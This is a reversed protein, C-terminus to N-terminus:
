RRLGLEAALSDQAREIMRFAEKLGQRALPGLAAPDVLDDPPRREAVCRAQHELRVQWLLRFAEELGLRTHEDIRGATTAEQLRRLTRNETLGAMIAGIRALNTIPTIGGDKVDFARVSAGRADLVADKMLGTPPRVDLALRALHRVFAGESGAERIVTDLLPQVELPGAVVRYDFAIGTFASGTRGPDHVWRRFRQQWNLPTDRWEPNSAIVGARCKPIGADQLHDNVFSTLRGFYPDVMQFPADKPDIVLANDQDTALAQELRAESGLAVWAWPCPPDGFKRIALELLRRTLTDITVAVAHGIDLPDANSSVLAVVAEPLRRAVEIAEEVTTAREIDSKLVFPTKREVGILDMDTVVGLIEDAGDVVPVHHIGRELMLAIVEAITADAPVTVVPATLVEGLATDPSRGPALVRTRLDKDTVIGMGSALEVLLSSVRERTMREAAERVSSSIPATVPPRRVLTGVRTRWPDAAEPEPGTLASVERRRLGAALFSLGRRTSLLERAVEQDVLYCITEEQARVTFAPALATLLSVFGFVEGEYLVDVVNTGDVFEVAGTRIVYLHSAPEGGQQMIVQGVPHFEIHTHRVVEEIRDESLDDFPPYLRLFSPIDM